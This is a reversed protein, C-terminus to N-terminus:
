KAEATGGFRKKLQSLFLQISLILFFLCAVTTLPIWPYLRVYEMGYSLMSVWEGTSSVSVALGFDDWDMKESGGVVIKFVALQGILFIVHVLESLSMFLLELRMNPLLHRVIRHFVSGGMVRSVEVYQKDNYFRAREAVQAALPIVGLLTVSGFYVINFLTLYYPDAKSGMNLGLGFYMAALPPYLLLVAPVASLLWHMSRLFGAGKGTIGVWLGWPGAFLFRLLTLLLVTGLTYKLGTLMLSVLDFGRHDTGLVFQSSPPFPAEFHQIKGNIEQKFRPLKDEDSIGHPKLMPGFLATLLILLIVAWSLYYLASTRKMM